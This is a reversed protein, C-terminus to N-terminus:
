GGMTVTYQTWVPSGCGEPICPMFGYTSQITVIANTSFVNGSDQNLGPYYLDTPTMLFHSSWWIPWSSISRILNSNVYYRNSNSPVIDFPKLEGDIITGHNGHKYYFFTRSISDWDQWEDIHNHMKVPVWQGEHLIWFTTSDGFEYTPDYANVTPTMSATFFVVTLFLFLKRRM